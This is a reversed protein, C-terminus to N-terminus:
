VEEFPLVLEDDGPDDTVPPRTSAARSPHDQYLADSAAQDYADPLEESNVDLVEEWDKGM